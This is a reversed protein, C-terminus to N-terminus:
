RSYNWFSEARQHGPKEGSKEQYPQSHPQSLSASLKESGLPLLPGQTMERLVFLIVLILWVIVANWAWAGPRKPRPYDPTVGAALLRDYLHPHIMRKSRMVAPIQNAEYLRELARAYTAADVANEVAVKDARVEMKRFLRPALALVGLFWFSTFAIVLRKSEDPLYIAPKTFILPFLLLSGLIRGLLVTRSETLHGLEHACIAAVEEDPHLELLRESFILERTTTLAAAYSAASQLLWVNRVSVGMRGATESVIRQLRESPPKLIRFLRLLGLALGWNMWLSVGLAATAIALAAWGFENPMALAASILVSWGGFRLLWSAGVQHLWSRFRLWPLVERDFPWTGAITGLFGFVGFLWLSVIDGRWFMEGALICIGPVLFVCLVAGIRIPYLKRARETWHQGASRRWPILALWNLGWTFIFAASFSSLMVLLVMGYRSLLTALCHGTDKRM